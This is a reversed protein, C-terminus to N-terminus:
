CAQPCSVRDNRSVQVAHPQEIENRALACILVSGGNDHITTGIYILGLCTTQQLHGNERELGIFSSHNQLFNLAARGLGLMHM